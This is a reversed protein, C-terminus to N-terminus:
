SLDMSKSRDTSSLRYADGKRAEKGKRKIITNSRQKNRGTSRRHCRNRKHRHGKGSYKGERQLPSAGGSQASDKKEQKKKGEKRIKPLIKREGRTFVKKTGPRNAKEISPSRTGAIPPSKQQRTKKWTPRVKDKLTPVGADLRNMSGDLHRRTNCLREREEGETKSSEDKRKLCRRKGFREESASRRKSQVHGREFKSLSNEERAESGRRGRWASPKLQWASL